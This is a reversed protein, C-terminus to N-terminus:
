FKFERDLVLHSLIGLGLAIGPVATQLFLTSLLVTFSTVLTCFTITHTFGRHKIKIKSIGLYVAIFTIAAAMYRYLFDLPAIISIALAATISTFAKVARHVYSNKHDIDPMVSGLFIMIFGLSIEWTTLSVVEKLLYMFIMAFFLGFLVHEKFDGM